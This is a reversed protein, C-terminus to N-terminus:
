IILLRRPTGLISTLKIVGAEATSAVTATDSNLVCLEVPDDKPKEDNGPKDDPTEDPTTADPVSVIGDTHESDASPDDGSGDFANCATFAFTLCAM